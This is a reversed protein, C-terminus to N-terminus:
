RMGPLADFLRRVAQEADFLKKCEIVYSLRELRSCTFLQQPLSCLTPSPTAPRQPSRRAHLPRAAVPAAAALM